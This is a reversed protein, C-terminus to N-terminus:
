FSRAFYWVRTSLRCVEANLIHVLFIQVYEAPCQFLFVTQILNKRMM